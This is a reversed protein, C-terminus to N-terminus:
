GHIGPMPNYPLPRNSDVDHYLSVWILKNVNTQNEWLVFPRTDVDRTLIFDEGLTPVSDFERYMHMYKLSSKFDGHITDYATRYEAWRMMYGFTAEDQDAVGTFYIEKNKVAQEGLFAFKPNYYDFRHERTLHKPLGQFYGAKPMVSMIGIIYGPERFTQSFIKDAGASFLRGAAYGPQNMFNAGEGSQDGGTQLVSQVAVKQTWGGLFQPRQLRLDEPATGYQALLYENYRSGGISMAELIRQLAFATRLENITVQTAEALNVTAGSITAAGTIATLDEQGIQANLGGAPVGVFATTQPVTPVVMQIPNDGPTLAFSAESITVPATDGLSITVPQGKQPSPLCATFYDKKYSRYKTNLGRNVSDGEIIPFDADCLCYATAENAMLGQAYNFWTDWASYYDQYTDISTYNNKYQLNEDRYWDYWIKFYARLPLDSVFSSLGINTGYPLHTPYELYDSLTGIANNEFLSAAQYYQNDKVPIRLATNTLHPLEPVDNEPLVRGDRSGTFATEWDKYLIRNPVYFYHFSVYCDQMMPAVTPAFQVSSAGRVKFRDNPLVEQIFCPVLEGFNASLLTNRGLPFTSFDIKPQVNKEFISM